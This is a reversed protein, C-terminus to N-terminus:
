NMKNILADHSVANEDIFTQLANIIDNSLLYLEGKTSYGDYAFPTEKQIALQRVVLTGMNYDFNQVNKGEPFGDMSILLLIEPLKKM